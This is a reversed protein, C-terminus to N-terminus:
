KTLLRSKVDRLDEIFNIDTCLLGRAEIKEVRHGSSILSQLGYGLSAKKRQDISMKGITNILKEIGTKSFKVIGSFKGYAENAPIARGIEIIKDGRVKVKVDDERYAGKAVAISIDAESKLLRKLVGADFVLDANLAIFGGEGNLLNDRALWLSFLNSTSSHYKNHIFNVDCPVDKCYKKVKNAKYGIVITINQIGSERLNQLQHELITKKDIKLLCQPTDKTLPRLRSAIGAALIVAKDIPVKQTKKNVFDRILQEIIENKKRTGKEKIILISFKRWLEEDINITTKVKKM